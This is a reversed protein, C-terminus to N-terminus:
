VRIGFAERQDRAPAAVGARPGKMLVMTVAIRAKERIPRIV